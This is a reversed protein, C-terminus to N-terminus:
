TTKFQQAYESPTVDYQKKFCSRFYQLDNFGVKYTIESITMSQQQLLEAAKKLRVTRIFENASQGLLGKMKRYLQSKSFGMEKCLDDIQFNSNGLNAEVIELIKELFLEDKTSVNTTTYTNNHTVDKLIQNKYQDRTKLINKIRLDLLKPNFPKTLYYDAGYEFGMKRSEDSSKVTLMIIFIHSTKEDNRIKEVLEFGNMIPMMLDTIILDPINRKALEYAQKGNEAEIIRYTTQLYTRTFARLDPNDEVILILPLDSDESLSIDQNLTAAINFEKLEIRSDESLSHTLIGEEIQQPLLHKKGLPLTVDFQTGQGQKSTVEIKGGHMEVLEKTLSLGIGTGSRAGKNKGQYFRNFILQLQDPSIGIGTDSISIVVNNDEQKIALSVTGFEPTYKFANSILNILIKEMKDKEFYLPIPEKPMEVHFSIFQEQSFPQFNTAINETFTVIDFKSTKLEEIGSEIKSLDLIQNILRLLREANRLMVNVQNKNEIKELKRQMAKLPSIILTLPTKFEHSINAFFRSRTQNLEQMKRTEIHEMELQNKLRERQIIMRYILFMASSFILIYGLIAWWRQYWPYLIKINLSAGEENWIGDNNSAQVQFVYNGPPINSYTVSQINKEDHWYSDYNKLRYRYQNKTAQSYNLAAFDIKIDNESAAFTINHSQLYENIEKQTIANPDSTQVELGTIYVPPIIDNKSIDKPNFFNFGNIGGFFLTNDKTKFCAAKNFERAQLGDALDFTQVENTKLDLRALGANTSIWFVDPTEELIGYVVDSPLGDEISFIKFNDQSTNDLRNLGGGDTGIWLRNKSDVHLYNTFNNSLGDQYEYSYKFNKVSVIKYDEDLEIRDLGGNESGIWLFGNQDTVIATIKTSTISNNDATPFYHYFKNESPDYMDLSMRHSAMWIKNRQDKHLVMINNGSPTNEDNPDHLISKFNNDEDKIFLGEGWTGMWLQNNDDHLMCVIENSKLGSSSNANFNKINLNGQSKDIVNLGGGDTGIWLNGDADESFSSVLGYSLNQKSEPGDSVHSFKQEFPDIKNIGNKFLGIWITGHNDEFLSWISNNHISYRDKANYPFHQTQKTKLDYMFLGNNETGIWLRSKSDELICMIVYKSNELNNDEFDLATSVIQNNKNKEVSIIGNSTGLWLRGEKGQYMSRIIKNQLSPIEKESVPTFIKKEKHYRCIGGEWTAIWIIGDKDQTIGRIHNSPIQNKKNKEAFFHQLTKTRRNWFKLGNKETGIWIDGDSDEFLVIIDQNQLPAKLNPHVPEFNQLHINFKSIGGTTGVWLNGESDNLLSQISSKTLSNPNDSEHFFSKFEVGNYQNLGYRTGFWLFGKDDQIISTITNQSISGIPRYFKIDQSSAFCPLLILGILYYFYRKM